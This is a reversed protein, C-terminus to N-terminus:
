KLIDRTIDGVNNSESEKAQIQLKEKLYKMKNGWEVELVDSWKRVYIKVRGDNINLSLGKDMEGHQKANDILEQIGKDYDKGILHFEWYQNEGNCLNQELIRKRYDNIQKYEKDEKLKISARKIEVVINKQIKEGISETKTLFLDVEGNPQTELLPDEIELIEKAYKLLVNKLAGETTSFLRFQEGFLWFNQDLIKQIHKVELTEKEYDTILLKLTELVNLRHDIEKTTKIIHSLSTRNLIDLLDDKEEETLIQIQELIIKILTDDQNSLLGAFTACVFKKELNSKNIFLSPTITYITKLLDNYSENDYIGFEELNPILKDEKLEEILEDSQKLLYPKRMLTLEDRIRNLISKKVKQINKDNFNLRTQESDDENIDELSQFLGSKIYVSHWFNDNKKNFGTNEKFIEINNSNLFYFKSYESPKKEWLVIKIEFDDDIKEQIKESFDSRKLIKDEKINNSVNIEKGNILIKYNENELLFWSFELLLNETLEKPSSLVSSFKETIEIFNIEIGENTFTRDEEIKIDTNHHLTLQKSKSLIKMKKAIWIFSYRGVGYQGKPLTKYKIPKKTSSIFNNTVSDDDFNWGKGNDIIKVNSVYGIGETPLDFNIKIETAGADFSNWIYEFLCKFPKNKYASLETKISQENIQLKSNKM